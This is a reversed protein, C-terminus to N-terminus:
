LERRSAIRALIAYGALAWVAIVLWAFPGADFPPQPSVGDALLKVAQSLPLLDLIAGPIGSEFSFVAGAVLVLPAILFGAYTNIASTNPILLGLLLGFGVLSVILAFAAGFFLPPDHIDLKTLVVTLAVGVAGYIYGALAKAALIEPGKAALRLAAFTGTELEDATQMPVVMMAVFIVFLLIAFLEDFSSGLIDAPKQDTAPVVHVPPRAAPENGAARALAIPALEVLSQGTPSADAAVLIEGRPAGAPAVIVALDVGQEAVRTRAAEADPARTLEIKASTGALDRLGRSVGGDPQDVVAIKTTPLTEDNAIASFVGVGIPLLLLVIIRGDRWAARLDKVLIALVRRPSM